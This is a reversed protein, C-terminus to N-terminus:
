ASGKDLLELIRRTDFREALARLTQAAAPCHKEVPALKELVLDFDGRITAARIERRLPAPLRAMEEPPLQAETAPTATHSSWVYAVGLLEGIKQFLESERLPKVFFADAGANLAEQRLNEAISATVVIIRVEHGHPLPRLQRIVEIGDMEPMRLDLLILQPLWEDFERLAGRGSAAQRIEFGAPALLQVLFDRNDERDDVVLTRIRPQGPQLGIVHWVDPTAQAEAHDVVEVQVHFHFCSGKDVESEVTIEGGMLQVLHRSIALGLGTGTAAARGAQTQEFHRFLRTQDQQTIGPGTDQVHFLLRSGAADTALEVRLSVQGQHTFKVANGLLNILVERLKGGDTKVFQPLNPAREVEFLLHKTETRLQFMKALDALMAHCDFAAPRLFIRGAEIKSLELVDNILELLHEGSRNIIELHQQQRTTVAADRLLLQTFGLIANLPTRIEHSMHALFASKARNASDASEKAARLEEYHKHESIDVVIGTLGVPQGDRLVVRSTILAAFETGDKRRVTYERSAIEGTALIQRIRERAAAREEEAIMQLGDMGAALDSDTYGFWQQLTQNAYLVRGSTDLEFVGTPLLMALERFRQESKRLADEAQKRMLAAGIHSAIGELIEVQELSFAGPRRDNLHILGIIRAEDRIPVMAVSAFGEHFCQNRTHAPEHGAPQRLLAADNVWYSGGRTFVPNAPNTRGSLVLGCTCELRPKGNEDRCTSGQSDRALLTNERLLFEPSFGDHTFYPFDDASQLRIGAAALGTRNKLVTLFKSIADKWDGPENLM